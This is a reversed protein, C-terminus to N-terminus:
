GRMFGELEDAAWAIAQDVTQGQQTCRAIMKTMTAQAYVQNAIAVPAPAGSISTILGERPPYNFVTGKPPAEDAWTKFDHLKAFSPLDYGKSAAVLQEVQPGQSLFTLLSKAAPKNASFGWIGWFYPLFPDYRGKPGSPPDFTWLQEGVKPADRVAVAWASPPNMVLAGKGSVLWKNNGADDWAFVDPPLNPVLKKFWELVQKTADSKVSINGDKDILEAGHSAFVAGVWDVSDSTQGLPMGFPFGAKACKEAAQLFFDWTWKDVLEKNPEGAAPYMQTLDLGVHQKFLDIRACPPKTQTGVTAPVAIWHGKQKGLYEVAGAVKGYKQILDNVIEDVPELEEAHTPGTWTPFALIDHGSRSQSEAAITLLNKDGQSTIYDVSVDVKEQDGWQKCLKTLTDNAGPVWHDWFGASIKGAAYAGRVHPMAVATTALAATQLLSRRTLKQKQM